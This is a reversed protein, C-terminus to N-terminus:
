NNQLKDSGSIKVIKFLFGTLHIYKEQIIMEYDAFCLTLYNDSLQEFELLCM